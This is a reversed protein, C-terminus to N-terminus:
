QTEFDGDNTSHSLELTCTEGEIVLNVLASIPHSKPRLVNGCLSTQETQM